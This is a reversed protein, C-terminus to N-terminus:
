AAVVSKVLEEAQRDGENTLYWLGKDEGVPAPTAVKALGLDRTVNPPHLKGSQKFKENFTAAIQPGSVENQKLIGKIVALMWIAKELVTWTQQPSGYKEPEHRFDFAQSAVGDSSGKSGTRRRTATRKKGNDPEGEITPPPPTPENGNTLAAAPQILGTIERSLANSIAPVDARDGEIDLELGQLKLHVKFKGM